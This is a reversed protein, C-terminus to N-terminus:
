AAVATRVADLAASEQRGTFLSAGSGLAAYAVRGGILHAVVSPVRGQPAQVLLVDARKGPALSGRDSLGAAEAPNSSVMAWAEPLTCVGDTNLRFAAPLMAPYYYDSTLVTCLGDRAMAAASVANSQHSGGRVVNPAGFVVHNGLKRALAATERTKPFESIGCGMAQYWQRTEPSPDDHSAQPVGAAVAAAALRAISPGVEAGRANVREALERLAGLELGSRQLVTMADRPHSLKRLIDPTHDNFALLDIKGEALWGLIETEADLNFTEHRLHLRTDCALHRAANAMADMIRLLTDRSRLGPEWSYTVGHYATSIGNSVLQRDTDALALQLDFHVGPRPMIQREFADGHLDIIGPLVYLGSADIVNGRRPASGAHSIVGDDICLDTQCLGQPLLVNGGCISFRDADAM